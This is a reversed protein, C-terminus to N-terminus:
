CKETNNQMIQNILSFSLIRHLSFEQVSSYVLEYCIYLTSEQKLVAIRIVGRSVM